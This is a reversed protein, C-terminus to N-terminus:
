DGQKAARDAVIGSCLRGVGEDEAMQRNELGQQRWQWAAVAAALANVVARRQRAV